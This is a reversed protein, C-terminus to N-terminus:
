GVFENIGWDIESLEKLLFGNDSQWIILIKSM